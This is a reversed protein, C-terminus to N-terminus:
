GACNCQVRANWQVGCHDVQHWKSTPGSGGPVINTTAICEVLHWKRSLVGTTNDPPFGIVSYLHNYLLIRLLLSLNNVEDHSVLM